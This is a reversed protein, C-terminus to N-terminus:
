DIKLYNVNMGCVDVGRRRLVTNFLTNNKFFLIGQITHYLPFYKTPIVPTTAICKRYFLLRM